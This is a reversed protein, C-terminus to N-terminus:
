QGVERGEPELDKLSIGYCRGLASLHEPKPLRYGREYLSLYSQAIGTELAVEYQSKGTRLRAWRLKTLKVM